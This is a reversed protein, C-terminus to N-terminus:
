FRLPLRRLNQQLICCFERFTAAVTFASRFAADTSPRADDLNLYPGCYIFNGDKAIVM